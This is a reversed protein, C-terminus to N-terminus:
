PLRPSITRIFAGASRNRASAGPSFSRGRAARAPRYRTQLEVLPGTACPSIGAARASRPSVTRLACRRTSPGPPVAQTRTLAAGMRAGPPVTHPATAVKESTESSWWRSAARSSRTRITECSRRVGSLAIRAWAWRSLAWPSPPRTSSREREIERLQSRIREIIWSRRSAVSRSAPCSRILGVSRSRPANACSTSSRWRPASVTSRTRTTEGSGTKARASGSRSSRM